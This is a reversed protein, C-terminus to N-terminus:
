RASRPSGAGKRGVDNLKGDQKRLAALFLWGKVDPREIKHHLRAALIRRRLEKQGDELSIILVRSRQFVHEGTIPRGTALALYQAYRLATKGTGGDAFLCSLFCRAFVNGLLWGRPPPLEMDDGADWEGLDDKMESFGPDARDKATHQASEAKGNGTHGFHERAAKITAAIDEPAADDDAMEGFGGSFFDEDGSV